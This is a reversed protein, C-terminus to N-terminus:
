EIHLLPCSSDLEASGSKSFKFMMTESEKRLHMSAYLQALGLMSWPNWPNEALDQDFARKAEEYRKDLTLLYGLCQKPPQEAWPPEMYGMENVVDM